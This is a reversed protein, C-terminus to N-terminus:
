AALAAPAAAPTVRQGPLAAIRQAFRQQAAPYANKFVQNRRERAPADAPTRFLSTLKPVYTFHHGHAYVNWLIWDELADVGPDFGGRQEFLRREFLVSQIAMFNHRALVGADFAQRLLPPVTYATERYPEEPTAGFATQVEWALSYAAVSAPDAQLAQVLVEVHDAFLLDDDDLFLCWRGTAAALGANGAV